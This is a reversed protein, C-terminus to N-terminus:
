LAVVYDAETKSRIEAESIGDALEILKMPGTGNKDIAFVGLDTVVLDVVAAGTLASGMHQGQPLLRPLLLRKLLAGM